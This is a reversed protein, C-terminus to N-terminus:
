FAVHGIPKGAVAYQYNNYVFKNRIADMDFTPNSVRQDTAIIKM